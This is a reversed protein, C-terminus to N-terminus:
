SRRAIVMGLLASGFLFVAGPVPVPNTVVGRETIIAGSWSGPNGTFEFRANTQDFQQSDGVVLVGDGHLLFVGPAEFIATVERFVFSTELPTPELVSLTADDTNLFVDFDMNFAVSAGDDAEAGYSFTLADFLAGVFILEALSGNSFFDQSVVDIQGDGITLTEAKADYSWGAGYGAVSSFAFMGEVTAAQALFPLFSLSFVALGQKLFNLKM